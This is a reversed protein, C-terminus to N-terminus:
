ARVSKENVEEADEEQEIPLAVVEFEEIYADKFDLATIEFNAIRIGQGVQFNPHEDLVYGTLTVKESNEFSQIETKFFREFDYLTMKGSVKYHMNGAADSGLKEVLDDAVDDVEDRVSGFLEEYIDKDTVIGSTGGFEDKVVVIPARHEIMEQLVETIPQTESVVPLNRLVTRISAEPSIRGQRVLDYSFVYGLIKDKDNDAVVPMRSFKEELYLNLADSISDTVNVVTLQTRDIMIDIAEKDNMAFARKMFTLDEEDLEGADAADRSLSLIEAESYIDEDPHASFGLIKTFFAAARDFLWILPYLIVHFFMVPRVIALLMKVPQDIAINKPVLDTFVAHIFTFILIAAVSSVSHAIAAPLIEANIILTAIFDEGLWGLILSTLTIGVQATSLYESLHDLMNLAHSIKGSPKERAEQMARLSSPRVKVLSYETLTFLVALLLIIIIIVLNTIISPGSDM